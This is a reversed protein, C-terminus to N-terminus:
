PLPFRREVLPTCSAGALRPDWHLEVCKSEAEELSRAQVSVEKQVWDVFGSEDKYGIDFVFTTESQETIEEAGMVCPVNGEFVAIAKFDEPPIEGGNADSAMKQVVKIAQQVDTARATEIYLDSGYETAMWDPYLVLVTYEAKENAVKNLKSEILRQKEERAWDITSFHKIEDKTVLCCAGGFAETTPRSCSYSIQIELVFDNLKFHKLLHQAFSAAHNSSFSEENHTIWVGAEIKHIEFGLQDADTDFDIDARIAQAIETCDNPTDEENSSEGVAEALRLAFDAQDSTLPIEFSALSYYNAM